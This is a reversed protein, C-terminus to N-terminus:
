STWHAMWDKWEHKGDKHGGDQWRRGRPGAAALGRDLPELSLGPVAQPHPM